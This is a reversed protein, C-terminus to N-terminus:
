SCQLLIDYKTYDRFNKTSVGLLVDQPKGAVYFDTPTITLMKGGGSATAVNIYEGDPVLMECYLDRSIVMVPRGSRNDTLRNGTDIFGKVTYTKGRFSFRVDRIFNSYMKKYMFYKIVAVSVAILGVDFLAILGVCIAIYEV